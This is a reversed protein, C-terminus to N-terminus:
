QVFGSRRQRECSRRAFEFHAGEPRAEKGEAQTYGGAQRTTNVGQLRWTKLWQYMAEAAGFGAKKAIEHESYTRQDRLVSILGIREYTERRTAGPLAEIHQEPISEM